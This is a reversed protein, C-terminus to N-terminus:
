QKNKIYGDLFVITIIVASGIYFSLSMLENEGFILLALIISYIPELNIAMILSYPTIHKMIETMWVFVLATCITGLVILYILDKISILTNFVTYDNKALMIVTIIIVGTLMEVMTIQTAGLKQIYKANFLTFLTGLLAAMIGYFYGLIYQTEAGVIYALCLIVIIGMIVEYYLIRRKFFIPEILASFLSSTALCLVAISITSVKIAEFFCLWHTTVLIGVGMIKIFDKKNLTFLKKKYALFLILSVSAILMRYWVLHIASLSILKGFIGTLGLVLVMIHLSSNKYKKIVNFM